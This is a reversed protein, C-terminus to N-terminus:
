PRPEPELVARVAAISARMAREGAAIRRITQDSVGAAFGLERADRTRLAERVAASLDDPPTEGSPARRLGTHTRDAQRNHM